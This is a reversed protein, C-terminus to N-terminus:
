VRTLWDSFDVIRVGEYQYEDHRTRAIIMKPYADQISLLPSVERQLTKDDTINDSVQIYLKENGRLAVFDIEKKYLKGVYVEYGRRLLELCVINEYVRGYDLNRRGLRALRFGHDSLYYKVSTKLYKKGRIDYRRVDYFLFAECLYRVYNSITKHNVPTGARSIAEAIGNPSTLNAVNDMLFESVHDLVDLGTIRYKTVLDRRIITDYVENVYAARDRETRYPYAGPLGGTFFYDDFLQRVDGEGEHYLCYESFSFPFVHLEIFRGTFLTTLDSGLLFANSGTLYLDYKHSAHLSNVALEFGRCLQIEDLFVYNVAQPDYANEVYEYLAHYEKLGEFRLDFFDVYIINAKPNSETVFRIFAKMLESKGSRRIGTIIKIDPTGELAKLRDLYASREIIKM